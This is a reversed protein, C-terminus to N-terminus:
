SKQVISMLLGRLAFAFLAFLLYSVDFHEPLFNRILANWCLLALLVWMIQLISRRINQPLRRKVLFVRYWRSFFDVAVLVILTGSLTIFLSNGM